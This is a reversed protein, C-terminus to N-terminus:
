FQASKSLFAQKWWLIIKFLVFQDTFASLFFIFVHLLSMLLKQLLINVFTFSSVRFYDGACGHLEGNPPHIQRSASQTSIIVLVVCKGFSFQLFLPIGQTHVKESGLKFPNETDRQSYTVAEFLEWHLGPFHNAFSTTVMSAFKVQM